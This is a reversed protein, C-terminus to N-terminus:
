IPHPTLKVSTSDEGRAIAVSGSSLEKKAIKSVSGHSGSDIIANIKANIKDIDRGNAIALALNGLSAMALVLLFLGVVTPVRQEENRPM